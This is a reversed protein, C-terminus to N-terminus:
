IADALRTELRALGSIIGVLQKRVTARKDRGLAQCEHFYIDLNQEATERDGDLAVALSEVCGWFYDGPM